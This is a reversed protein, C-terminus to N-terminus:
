LSLERFLRTPEIVEVRDFRLDGGSFDRTNSTVLYRANAAIALEILHNDGEDRLNPRWRYHIDVLTCRSFFADLLDNRDHLDFRARQFHTTRNVVDEYELYLALSLMPALRGTLCAEIVKSAPGQGICASVLVNTDAVIRIM